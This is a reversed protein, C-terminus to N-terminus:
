PRTAPHERIRREHVINDVRENVSAIDALPIKPERSFTLLGNQELETDYQQTYCYGQFLGDEAIALTYESFNELLSKEQEAKYFGFGGYESILLPQGKYKVGPALPSVAQEHVKLRGLINSAKFELNVPDRLSAYYEKSKEVTGLYHHLDLIDPDVHEFGSNDVVPRSPDMKRTLDAMEKIFGRAAGSYVLNNVGWSENIPVWTIICPHNRDRRIVEAWQTRLAHRMRGSWLFASPMEEWVLLGLVDAWFLFRPNEVKQHMRVGNFGMDLAQQVDTRFDDWQPPTYHGKSFYGQNLLLKQYLPEGNLLIQKGSVKVTRFGFYTEIADHQRGDADLLSLRARYLAPDKPSWPRPRPVSAHLAAPRAGGIHAFDRNEEYQNGRPGVIEVELRYAGPEGNIECDFAVGGTDPDADVRLDGISAHGVTELYVSQWIGSVPTYFISFPAGTVSQKGRPIRPDLSDRVRIVLHNAGNRMAGTADMTFPTYGGQHQGIINGNLWVQASYDAAGVTLLARRGNALDAPKEFATHYWMVAPLRGANVGSLEAEVCFPARIKQAGWKIRNPWGITRGTNFRDFAFDWQGDLVLTGKRVRDPRPQAAAHAIWDNM